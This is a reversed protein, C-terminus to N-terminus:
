EPRLYKDKCWQKADNYVVGTLRQDDFLHEVAEVCGEYRFQASFELEQQNKQNIKHAEWANSFMLFSWLSLYLGAAILAIRTM